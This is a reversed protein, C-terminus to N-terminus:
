VGGVQVTVTKADINLWGAVWEELSYRVDGGLLNYYNACTNGQTPAFKKSCRRCTWEFGLFFITQDCNFCVARLVISSELEELSIAAVSEGLAAVIKKVRSEKKRDEILM